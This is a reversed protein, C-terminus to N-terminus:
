KSFTQKSQNTYFYPASKFKAQYKQFSNQLPKANLFILLLALAIEFITVIINSVYDPPVTAWFVSPNDRTAMSIFFFAWYLFDTFAYYFYFVGSGAIITALIPLSKLEELDDEGNHMKKTILKPFTWFLISLFLPLAFYVFAFFMNIRIPSENQNTFYIVFQGLMQISYIFLGISLVRVAFALYHKM